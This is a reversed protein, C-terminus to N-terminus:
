LNEERIAEIPTTHKLLQLGYLTSLVMLLLIVGAGLLLANWPPQFGSSAGRSTLKELVFCLGIGLPIGFLLARACSRSNEATVMRLLDKRTFGISQLIGFDRRRLVINTSMTYFVNIGCLLSILILFGAAVGRILAAMGLSNVATERHDSYVLLNDKTLEKLKPLLSYYDALSRVHIGLSFSEEEPLKSLPLVFTIGNLGSCGDPANVLRGLPQIQLYPIDATAAAKGATGTAKDYSRYTCVATGSSGETEFELLWTKGMNELLFRGDDTSRYAPPEIPIGPEAQADLEYPIALTLCLLEEPM